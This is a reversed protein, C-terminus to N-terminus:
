GGRSETALGPRKMRARITAVWFGLPSFIVEMLMILTIDRVKSMMM